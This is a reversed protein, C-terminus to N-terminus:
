ARFDIVHTEGVPDATETADKLLTIFLKFAYPPRITKPSALSKGDDSLNLVVREQGVKYKPDWRLVARMVDAAIPQKKKDYFSIKFTGNVIQVGLFGLEGRSVEMGEIKPEKKEKETKKGYGESAATAVPATRTAVAPAITDTALTPTTRPTQSHASLTVLASCMLPLLTKMRAFKRTLVAAALPNFPAASSKTGNQRPGQHVLLRRADARM